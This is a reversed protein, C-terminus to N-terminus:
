QDEKAYSKSCITCSGWRRKDREAGSGTDWRGASANLEIFLEGVMTAINQFERQSVEVKQIIERAKAEIGSVSFKISAFRDPNGILACFVGALVPVANSWSPQLWSSYLVFGFFLAAFLNFIIDKAREVQQGEGCCDVAPEEHRPYDVLALQSM